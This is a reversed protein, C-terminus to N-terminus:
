YVRRGGQFRAGWYGSLSSVEVRKGTRPAHIFSDGGAYIGVHGPFIVLDGPKLESRSVYGGLRAQGASSRPLSIGYQRYVYQTLGSCDFGSPTSGGYRYRIGIYHRATKVIASGLEGNYTPAPGRSSGGRSATSVPTPRRKTGVRVIKEVPEEIINEELVEESEKLGNVYTVSKIIQKEGKKGEQEVKTEGIYLSSDKKEKTEYAISQTKTEKAEIIVDIYSEQITLNITEGPMLKELDKGPNAAELDELSTATAKAITWATDGAAIEYVKAKTKTVEKIAEEEPLIHGVQVDKEVVEVEQNFDAQVVETNKIGKVGEIFPQKIYELINEAQEKSELILKEEGDVVIVSAPKYIEISDHINTVLDEETVLQDKKARVKNIQVDESYYAELGHDGAVRNKATLLANQAMEEEKVIGMSKGNLVLEYSFSSEYVYASLVAGVIIIGSILLVKKKWSLLNPWEKLRSMWEKM